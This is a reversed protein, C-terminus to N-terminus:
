PTVLNSRHIPWASLMERPIPWGPMPATPSVSNPRSWGAAPLSSKKITEDVSQVGIVIMPQKAEDSRIFMGGNIAGKETVM